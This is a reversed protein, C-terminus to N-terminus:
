WKLITVNYITTNPYLRQFKSFEALITYLIFIDFFATISPIMNIVYIYQIILTSDEQCYSTM